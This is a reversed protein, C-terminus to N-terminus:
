FLFWSKIRLVSKNEESCIVFVTQAKGLQEWLFATNGQLIRFKNETIADLEELIFLSVGLSAKLSDKEGFYM